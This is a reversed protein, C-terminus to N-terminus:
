PLSNVLEDNVLRNQALSIAELARGRDVPLTADVLGTKAEVLFAASGFRVSDLRDDEDPDLLRSGHGGGGVVVARSFSIDLLAEQLQIAKHASTSARLHSLWAAGLATWGGGGPGGLEDHRTHQ